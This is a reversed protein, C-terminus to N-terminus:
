ARGQTERYHNLADALDPWSLGAEEALTFIQRLDANPDFREAAMQHLALPALDRRLDTLASKLARGCDSRDGLVRTAIRAAADLRVLSEVMKAM